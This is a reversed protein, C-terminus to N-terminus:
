DNHELPPPPPDVQYAGTPDILHPLAHCKGNDHDDRADCGRFPGEFDLLWELAVKGHYIFWDMRASGPEKPPDPARHDEYSHWLETLVFVVEPHRWWEPCWRRVSSNTLDRRFTPAFFKLYFEHVTLYELERETQVSAQANDQVALQTTLIAYLYTEAADLETDTFRADKVTAVHELPDGTKSRWVEFWDTNVQRGQQDVVQWELGVAHRTILPAAILIM